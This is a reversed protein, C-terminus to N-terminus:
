AALLYFGDRLLAYLRSHFYIIIDNFDLFANETGDNNPNIIKSSRHTGYEGGTLVM